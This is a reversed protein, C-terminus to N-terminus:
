LVVELSLANSHAGQADTVQILYVGLPADEEILITVRAVSPSVPDRRTIRIGSAPKNGRLVVVRHDPRLGSGRIELPVTVGRRSTRPSLLELKTARPAESVTQASDSRTGIAPSATSTTPEVAVRTAPSATALPPTPVPAPPPQAETAVSTPEVATALPTALPTPSPLARASPTKTAASRPNVATPSPSALTAGSSSPLTASTPPPQDGSLSTPTIPGQTTPPLTSAQPQPVPERWSHLAFWVGIGLSLVLALATAVPKVFTKRQASATADTSRQALPPLTSARPLVVSQTASVPLPPRTPQQPTRLAEVLPALTAPRRAPDKELCAMIADGLEAPVEARVRSIPEPVVRLVNNLTGAVTSGLFPNHQTLMEYLVVGTAYVDSGISYQANELIEPAMYAPTGMVTGTATLLSEAGRAIGFDMLKCGGDPLVQVNSPKLDRHLVDRAHAYELASCLGLAVKLHAELPHPEKLWVDLGHGEVFEMVLYPQEDQFGFDHLVVINPHSFRGIVRAEHIFRLREEQGASKMVKIALERGILADEALYVTGMAGQGLVRVIRYKGLQEPNM